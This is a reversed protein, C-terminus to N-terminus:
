REQLWRVLAYMKGTELGREQMDLVDRGRAKSHGKITKEYWMHRTTKLLVSCNCGQIGVPM